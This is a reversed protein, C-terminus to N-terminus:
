LLKTDSADLQRIDSMGLLRGLPATAIRGWRAEDTARQLDLGALLIRNMILGSLWLYESLRKTQMEVKQVTIQVINSLKDLNDLIGRDVAQNAKFNNNFDTLMDENKTLQNTNSNPIICDLVSQILNTAFNAM